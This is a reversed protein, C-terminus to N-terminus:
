YQSEKRRTHQERLTRGKVELETVRAPEGCVVCSELEFTDEDRFREPKERAFNSPFFARLRGALDDLVNKGSFVALPFASRNYYLITKLELRSPPLSHSLFRRFVMPTVRQVRLASRARPAVCSPGSTEEASCVEQRDGMLMPVVIM